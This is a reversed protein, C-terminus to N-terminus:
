SYLKSASNVTLFLCCHKMPNAGTTLIIWYMITGNRIVNLIASALFWNVQENDQVIDFSPFHSAVVVNVVVDDLAVAVDYVAVVVDDVAVVFSYRACYQRHCLNEPSQNWWLGSFQMTCLIAPPVVKRTVPKEVSWFIPEVPLITCIKQHNTEGCVLFNTGGICETLLCVSLSNKVLTTLESM